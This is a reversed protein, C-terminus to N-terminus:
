SLVIMWIRVWFCVLIFEFADCISIINKPFWLCSFLKIIELIISLFIISKSLIWLLLLCIIPACCIKSLLLLLSICVFCIVFSWIAFCLKMLFFKITSVLKVFKHFIWSFFSFSVFIEIIEKSVKVRLVVFLFTWILKFIRKEPILLIKFFHIFM